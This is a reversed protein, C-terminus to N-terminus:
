YNRTLYICPVSDFITLLLCPEYLTNTFVRYVKRQTRLPLTRADKPLNKLLDATALHTFGDPMQPLSDLTSDSGPVPSPDSLLTESQVRVAPKVTLQLTAAKIWCLRLRATQGRETDGLTSQTYLNSLLNKKKLYSPSGSLIKDFVIRSLTQPM